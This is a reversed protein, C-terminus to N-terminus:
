DRQRRRPVAASRARLLDAGPLAQGRKFYKERIQRGHKGPSIWLGLSTRTRCWRRPLDGCNVWDEEPDRMIVLDDTGIYRGGDQEHLLPVPFKLLDVEDDRDVNELM